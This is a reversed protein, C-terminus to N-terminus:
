EVGWMWLCPLAAPLSSQGGEKAFIPRSDRKPAAQLDAHAYSSDLVTAIFKACRRNQCHRSLIGRGEAKPKLGAVNPGKYAGVSNHLRWHFLAATLLAAPAGRTACVGM